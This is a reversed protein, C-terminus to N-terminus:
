ELTDYPVPGTLSASYASSAYGCAGYNCWRGGLNLGHARIHDRCLHDHVHNLVNECHPRCNNDCVHYSCGGSHTRGRGRGRGDRGIDRGRGRGRGQHGTTYNQHMHNHMMQMNQMMSQVLATQDVPPIVANAQQQPQIPIDQPIEQPAPPPPPPSIVPENEEVESANSLRSLLQMLM